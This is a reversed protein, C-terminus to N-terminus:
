VASILNYYTKGLGDCDNYFIEIQNYITKGNTLKIKKDMVNSLSMTFDNKYWWEFTIAITKELSNYYVDEIKKIKGIHQELLTILLHEHHNDHDRCINHVLITNWTDIGDFYTINKKDLKNNAYQYDLYLYELSSNQYQLFKFM